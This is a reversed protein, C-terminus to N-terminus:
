AGNKVVIVVKGRAHGQDLYRFAEATESLRYTRDIVPTVRGAEVMEKLTILDGQNPASVFPREVQRVFLPLLFAKIVYGMGAHGSNPMLTGGPELVRRYDAFSHSAVNDLILDYRPEGQTFDEKTYDIVHDAGISGVMDVNATSCVGTVEAGLAKAIQVAFTGVGGSAGNILVKQGPQVKGHDRLAQLAALASTPVAAAQEFTLNHPKPVLQDEKACTYEACARSCGGFVEDGPKFRTVNKGVTEVRGALDVGVVFDKKPKPFGVYMRIPFPAGRMAFYDGAALSAAHIRVLVEDDNAVPKDIEKLELVDASGYGVQVVAKM